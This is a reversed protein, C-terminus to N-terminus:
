AGSEIQVGAFDPIAVFATASSDTAAEFAKSMAAVIDAEEGRACVAILGSGSGSITAAWAGARMAAAIADCGGPIMGIRHPVHLEDDFGIRLLDADAEAFGEVLAVTRAITRVAASHAVNAPLAQRAAKTSVVVNPAAFVFGIQESLHLPLIRHPSGGRHSVVAVLGGTLSPASNDPHGERAVAEALAVDYDLPQKRVAASIALGAVTAAASSGLGKGVPINSDLILTGTIGRARLIGLVIDDDTLQELTGYRELRESPGPIFRASLHRNFALGICDFGAGLNSTSCPVTVRVESV